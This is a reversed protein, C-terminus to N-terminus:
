RQEAISERCHHIEPSAASSMPLWTSCKPALRHWRWRWRRASMAQGSPWLIRSPCPRMRVQVAVALSRYDEAKLLAGPALVLLTATDEGATCDEVPGACAWPGM